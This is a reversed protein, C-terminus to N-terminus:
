ETRSTIIQRASSVKELLGESDQYLNNIQVYATYLSDRATNATTEATALLSDAYAQARKKYDDAKTQAEEITARAKIESQHNIEIARLDAEKIIDDAKAKALKIIETENVMMVVKQNASEIISSAEQRSENLIREREKKVWQAQKIEEPYNLRFQQIVEWVEERDLMCKTTLPVKSANEVIEELEEILAQLDM